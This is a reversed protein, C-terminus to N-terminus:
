STNTIPVGVIFRAAINAINRFLSRSPSGSQKLLTQSFETVFPNRKILLPFRKVLTAKGYRYVQPNPLSLLLFKAIQKQFRLRAMEDLGFAAMMKRLIDYPPLDGHELETLRPKIEATVFRRVMDRITLHQESWEIM